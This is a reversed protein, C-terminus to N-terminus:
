AIAVVANRGVLWSFLSSYRSFLMGEVLTKQENDLAELDFEKSMESLLEASCLKGHQGDENEGEPPETFYRLKGTNWDVLVKKAAASMDPRGGKKLRGIKRAIYALFEDCTKFEPIVYHLIM